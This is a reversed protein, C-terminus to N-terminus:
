SGTTGGGERRRVVITMTITIMMTVLFQCRALQTQLILGVLQQFYGGEHLFTVLRQDEPPM